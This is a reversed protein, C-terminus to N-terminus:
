ALVLALLVLVLPVGLAALAPVSWTVTGTAPGQQGAAKAARDPAGSRAPARHRARAEDLQEAAFRTASRGKLHAAAPGEKAAQQDQKRQARPSTQLVWARALLERGDPGAFRVTVAGDGKIERISRWPARVDRLPNRVLIGADDARIGPRLGVAYAIGCGFLLLAGLVFSFRDYRPEGTIGVMLDLLNLVAFAVFAWGLVRALASRYSLM